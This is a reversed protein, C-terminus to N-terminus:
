KGYKYEGEYKKFLESMTMDNYKALDMACACVNKETSAGVCECLYETLCDFEKIPEEEYEDPLYYDKDWCILFGGNVKAKAEPKELVTGSSSRWWAEEGALEFFEKETMNCMEDFLEKEVTWVEYGNGAYTIKAKIQPNDITDFFRKLSHGLIEVYKM